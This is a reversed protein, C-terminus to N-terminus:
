ETCGYAPSSHLPKSAAALNAQTDSFLYFIKGARGTGSATSSGTKPLDYNIVHSIDEIDLGRRWTLPSWCKIQNMRFRNLVAERRQMLDGNL